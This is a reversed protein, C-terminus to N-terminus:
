DFFNKFFFNAFYFRQFASAADSNRFMVAFAAHDALDTEEAQERGFGIVLGRAGNREHAPTHLLHHGGRAGRGAPM